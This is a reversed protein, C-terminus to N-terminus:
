RPKIPASYLYMENAGDEADWGQAFLWNGEFQLLGGWALTGGRNLALQRFPEDKRYLAQAAQNRGEFDRYFFDFVLEDQDVETSICALEYLKGLSRTNLYEQPDFSWNLMDDSTGVQQKGGCGESLFMRYMGGIRVAEGRSNRPIVAGKAWLRSVERPVALGVKEWHLLDDSVAVKIDCGVAVEEGMSQRAIEEEGEDLPWIGNYFLYYRDGARYIKPDECSVLENEDTPYIVPNEEYDTWTRSDPDYVALGIRSGLTEKRPAARYFMYLKGNREILSPNFLFGSRWGFNYPDRWHRDLKFTMDVEQRFPGIAWDPNDAYSGAFDLTSLLAHDGVEMAMAKRYQEKMIEIHDATLTM